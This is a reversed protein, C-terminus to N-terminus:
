GIAVVRNLLIYLRMGIGETNQTGYQPDPFSVASHVAVSPLIHQGYVMAIITSYFERESDICLSLLM